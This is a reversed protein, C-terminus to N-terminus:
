AALQALVPSVESTEQGESTVARQQRIDVTKFVM